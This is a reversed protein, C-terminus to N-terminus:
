LKVVESRTAKMQIVFNEMCKIRDGVKMMPWLGQGNNYATDAADVADMAKKEGM